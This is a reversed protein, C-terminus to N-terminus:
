VHCLCLLLKRIQLISVLFFHFIKELSKCDSSNRQRLSWLNKGLADGHKDLYSTRAHYTRPNASRFGPRGLATIIVKRLGRLSPIDRRELSSPRERSPPRSSRRQWPWRGQGRYKKSRSQKPKRFKSHSGDRRKGFTTKVGSSAKSKNTAM